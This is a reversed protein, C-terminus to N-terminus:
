TDPRVSGCRAVSPFAKVARWSLVPADSKRSAGTALMWGEGGFLCPRQLGREFAATLGRNWSRKGILRVEECQRGIRLYRQNQAPHQALM